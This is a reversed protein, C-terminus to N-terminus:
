IKGVIDSTLSNLNDYEQEPEYGETFNEVKEIAGSFVEDGFYGEIMLREVSGLVAACYQVNSERQTTYSNDGFARNCNALEDLMADQAKEKSTRTDPPKEECGSLLLISILGICILKGSLFKKAIKM